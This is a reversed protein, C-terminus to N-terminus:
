DSDRGRPGGMGLDMPKYGSPVEFRSEAIPANDIALTARGTEHGSAYCVRRVLVRDDTPAQMGEPVLSHSWAQLSKSFRAVRRTEVDGLHLATPAAYCDERVLEDGRLHERRLCTVGNVDAEGADRDIRQPAPPAGNTAPAGPGGVAGPMTMAGAMPGGTTMMQQMQARQEPPMKALQQEMMKQMMQQTHPDMPMQGNKAAAIMEERTMPKGGPGSPAGGITMGNGCDIPEGPQRDRVGAAMGPCVSQAMEFPDMGGSEKRMRIRLSKMIDAQLDVADEDLETQMYTRSRDDIFYALKEAHDYIMGGGSGDGHSDVRLWQGRLEVTDFDGTCGGESRYRLTNDALAPASTLVCLTLSARIAALMTKTM